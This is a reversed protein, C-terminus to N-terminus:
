NHFVIPHELHCTGNWTVLETGSEQSEGGVMLSLPNRHLPGFEPPHNIDGLPMFLTLMGHCLSVCLMWQSWSKGGPPYGVNGQIDSQSWSPTKQSIPFGVSKRGVALAAEGLSRGCM